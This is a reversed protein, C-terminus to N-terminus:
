GWESSVNGKEAQLERRATSNRFGFLPSLATLLLGAKAGQPPFYEMKIVSRYKLLLQWCSFIDWNTSKNKM